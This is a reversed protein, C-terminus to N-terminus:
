TVDRQLVALRVPRGGREEDRTGLPAFGNDIFFKFADRNGEMVEATFRAMGIGAADNTAAELLKSGIHRGRYKKRVVIGMVGSDHAVRVIECEGVIGGSDECVTDVVSRSEIGRMKNYFVREVEGGSPSKAFWMAMPYEQYAGIVFELLAEIDGDNLPRIRM